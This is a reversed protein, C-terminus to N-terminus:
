SPGGLLTRAVALAPHDAQSAIWRDRDEIDGADQCTWVRRATAEAADHRRAATELWDALPQRLWQPVQAARAPSYPHQDMCDKCWTLGDADTRHLEDPCGCGSQQCADADPDQLAGAAAHLQEAPTQDPM